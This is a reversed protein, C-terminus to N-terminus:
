SVGLHIQYRAHSVTHRQKKEGREKKGNEGEKERRQGDAEEVRAESNISGNRQVLYSFNKKKINEM